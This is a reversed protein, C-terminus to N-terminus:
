IDTGELAMRCYTAFKPNLEIGIPTLFLERAAKFITGSGAFADLVTDGPIASMALLYKYLEVPKQAAHIKNADATIEIVDRAVRSCPRSGRTAFLIVEYNRSYGQGTGESLKGM